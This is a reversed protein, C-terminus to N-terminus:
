PMKLLRGQETAQLHTSFILLKILFQSTTMEINLKQIDTTLGVGANLFMHSGTGNNGIDETKYKTRQKKVKVTKANSNVAPLWM